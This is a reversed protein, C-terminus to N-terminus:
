EAYVVGAINSEPVRVLTIGKGPASVALMVQGDTLEELNEVLLSGSLVRPILYLSTM